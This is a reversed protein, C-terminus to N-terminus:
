LAIATGVAAAWLLDANGHDYVVDQRQRGAPGGPQLVEAEGTIPAIFELARTGLRGVGDITVHRREKMWARVRPAGRKGPLRVPHGESAQGGHTPCGHRGEPEILGPHELCTLEPDHQTQMRWEFGSVGCPWFVM